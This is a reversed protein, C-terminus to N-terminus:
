AIKELRAKQCLPYVDMFPRIRSVMTDYSPGYLYLATEKPGEWYSQIGGHGALLKEFETWVVNVDSQEYVSAPLDTGNLYVALGENVGFPTKTGDDLILFSGKPAGLSELYRSIEGLIQETVDPLNIDIDSRQVEGNAAQLTGGGTVGGIGRAALFEELPDEYIEGRDLPRLRANLEAVILKASSIQEEELIDNTM